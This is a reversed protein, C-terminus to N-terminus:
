RGLLIVGLGLSTMIWGSTVCSSVSSSPYSSLHQPRSAQTGVGCLVRPWFVCKSVCMDEVLLIRVCSCVCVGMRFLMCGVREPKQGRETTM